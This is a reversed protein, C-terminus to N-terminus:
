IQNAPGFFKEIDTVTQEILAPDEPNEVLEVLLNGLNKRLTPRQQAALHAMLEVAQRISPQGQGVVRLQAREEGGGSHRGGRGTELWEARVEVAKAISLLDRPRKRTGSEINGIASQSVGAKDALETQSWGKELRVAKLRSGITDM